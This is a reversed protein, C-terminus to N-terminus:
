EFGGEIYEIVRLEELNVWIFDFRMQLEIAWKNRSVFDLATTKIKNIKSRNIKLPGSFPSTESKVEVFCLEGSPARTIIDLEGYKTSYNREIIKHGRRKLFEVAVDEGKNKGKKM